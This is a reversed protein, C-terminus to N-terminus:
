TRRGKDFALINGIIKATRAVQKAAPPAFSPGAGFRRNGTMMPNLTRKPLPQIVINDVRNLPRTNQTRASPPHSVPYISIPIPPLTTTPPPPAASATNTNTNTGSGSHSASQTKINSGVSSETGICCPSWCGCLLIRFCRCFLICGIFIILLAGSLLTIFPLLWNLSEPKTKISQYEITLQGPITTSNLKHLEQDNNTTHFVM